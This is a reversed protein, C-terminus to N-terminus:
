FVDGNGPRRQGRDGGRIHLVAAEVADTRPRDSFDRPDVPKDQPKGWDGFTDDVRFGSDRFNFSCWVGGDDLRRKAILLFTRDGQRVLSALSTAGFEVEGSEKAARMVPGRNALTGTNDADKGRLESDELLKREDYNSRNTSSVALIATNTNRGIDQLRKTVYAVRMRGEGEASVNALQLYDVVALKTAKSGKSCDDELWREVEDVTWGEASGTDLTLPLDKVKDHYLSDLQPRLAPKGVYLDKWPMTGHLASAMRLVVQTEDLELSAYYVEVGQLAAHCAVQVAFTTKGNGPASIIPHLGPWYGGELLRNYHPWPTPIPREEGSIRRDVVKSMDPWFKSLQQKM